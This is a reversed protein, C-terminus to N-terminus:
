DLNIDNDKGIKKLRDIYEVNIKSKSIKIEETGDPYVTTSISDKPNLASLYAKNLLETGKKIEGTKFFIKIRYIEATTSEVNSDNIILEKLSNLDINKDVIPRLYDNLHNYIDIELNVKEIKENLEYWFDHGKVIQGLRFGIQCDYERVFKPIEKNWNEIYFQSIFFGINFTFSVNDQHNWRSKQINVVQTIESTKKNFVNGKKKFGLEKFFPFVINKLIEDFELQLNRQAITEKKFLSKFM